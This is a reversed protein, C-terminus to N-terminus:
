GKVFNKIKTAAIQIEEETTFRGLSFRVSHQAENESLGLARLVYSPEVGKSLCASGMSFALEPLANLLTKGSFNAFRINLIGPFTTKLDSNVTIDCSSLGELFQTRLQTLKQFDNASEKTALAFAEGMGVIQHTALTGSRMGQEQAGGHIQAAVRARPKRRVYLAGIGKPGYIKHACLSVFDVPM